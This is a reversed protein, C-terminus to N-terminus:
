RNYNNIVGITSGIYIQKAKYQSLTQVSPSVKPAVADLLNPLRWETYVTSNELTLLRYPSQANNVSTSNSHWDRSVGGIQLKANAFAEAKLFAQHINDKGILAMYFAAAFEKAFEDDLEKITGVVCPVGVALLLAAAKESYCSNLFVLKLNPQHRLIKAFDDVSMGGEAGIGELVLMEQNSHGGFHILEVTNNLDPKLLNVKLDELTADPLVHPKILGLTEHAFFLHKLAEREASLQYLRGDSNAYVFLLQMPPLHDNKM